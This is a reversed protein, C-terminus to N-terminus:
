LKRTRTKPKNQEQKEEQITTNWASYRINKGELANIVRLDEEIFSENLGSILSTYTKTFKMQSNQKITENNNKEKKLNNLKIRLQHIDSNNQKIKNDIKELIKDAPKFFIIGCGLLVLSGVVAPLYSIGISIGIASIGPSLVICIASIFVSNFSIKEANRRKHLLKYNKVEKNAIKNIIKKIQKNTNM